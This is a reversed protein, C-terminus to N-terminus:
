GSSPHRTEELLSQWTGDAVAQRAQMVVERRMTLQELAPHNEQTAQQLMLDLSKMVEDRLLEPHSGIYLYLDRRVKAKAVLYNEIADNVQAETMPKSLTPPAGTQPASQEPKFSLSVADPYGPLQDLNSSWFSFSLEGQGGEATFKIPGKGDDIVGDVGGKTVGRFRIRYFKGEFSLSGLAGKKDGSKIELRVPKVVRALLANYFELFGPDNRIKSDGSIFERPSGMWHDMLHYGAFTQRWNKTEAIASM